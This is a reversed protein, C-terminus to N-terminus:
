GSRSRTDKPGLSCGPRDDHIERRPRQGRLEPCFENSANGFAAEHLTTIEIKSVASSVIVWVANRRQDRVDDRLLGGDRTM